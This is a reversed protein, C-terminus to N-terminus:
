DRPLRKRATMGFTSTWGAREGLRQLWRSQTSWYFWPDVDQFGSRLMEELAGEDVGQRVVHYEIMDSPLSEDYIGRLRRLQSGVGRKPNGQRIRWFMYAGRDVGM